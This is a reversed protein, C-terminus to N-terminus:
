GSRISGLRVKFYKQHATAGCSPSCHWCASYPVTAMPLYQYGNTAGGRRAAGVQRAMACRRRFGDSVMEGWGSGDSTREKKRCRGGAMMWRDEMTPRLLIM